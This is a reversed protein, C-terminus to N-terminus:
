SCCNVKKKLAVTDSLMHKIKSLHSAPICVTKKRKYNVKIKTNIEKPKNKVQCFYVASFGSLM